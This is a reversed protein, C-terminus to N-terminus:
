DIIKNLTTEVIIFNNRYLPNGCQSQRNELVELEQEVSCYPYLSLQHAVSEMSDCIAILTRDHKSLWTDSEYILFLKM